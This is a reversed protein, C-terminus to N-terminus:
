SAYMPETSFSRLATQAPKRPMLSCSSTLRTTWRTLRSSSAPTPSCVLYWNCVFQFPFLFWFSCYRKFSLFCSPTCPAFSTHSSRPSGSGRRRWKSLNRFCVMSEKNLEQSLACKKLLLSRVLTTSIMADEWRVKEQHAKKTATRYETALSGGFFFFNRCSIALLIFPPGCTGEADKQTKKLAKDTQLLPRSFLSHFLSLLLLFFLFSFFFFTEALWRLIEGLNRM